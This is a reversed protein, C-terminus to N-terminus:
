GKTHCDDMRCRIEGGSRKRVVVYRGCESVTAIVGYRNSVGYTRVRVNEGVIPKLGTGSCRTCNAMVIRKGEGERILKETLAPNAGKGYTHLYDNPINVGICGCLKEYPATQFDSM